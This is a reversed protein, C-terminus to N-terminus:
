IILHQSWFLWPHVKLHCQLKKKGGEKEKRNNSYKAHTNSTMLLCSAEVNSSLLRALNPGIQFKGALHFYILFLPLYYCM